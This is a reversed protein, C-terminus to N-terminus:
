LRFPLEIEAEWLAESAPFCSVDCPVLARRDDKCQNQLKPAIQWDATSNDLKKEVWKSEAKWVDKAHPNYSVFTSFDNAFNPICHTNAVTIKM